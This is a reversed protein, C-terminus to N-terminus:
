VDDRETRDALEGALGIVAGAICVFALSVFLPLGAAIYALSMLFSGICLWVCIAIVARGAAALPERPGGDLRSRRGM